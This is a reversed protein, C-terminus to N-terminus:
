LAANKPNRVGIGTAFAQAHFQARNMQDGFEADRSIATAVVYHILAEHYVQDIVPTGGPAVDTPDKAVSIELRASSIRNPSIVPFVWYTVPDNEPEYCYHEIQSATRRQWDPDERDLTGREIPRVSRGVTGDDKANRYVDLLRTAGPPISQKPGNVPTVTTTECYAEPKMQCVRRQGLNIYDVLDAASYRVSGVDQLIGAATEVIENVSLAM